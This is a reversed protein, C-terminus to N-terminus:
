FAFRFAFLTPARRRHFLHCCNGATGIDSLGLILYLCGWFGVDKVSFDAKLYVASESLTALIAALTLFLLTFM